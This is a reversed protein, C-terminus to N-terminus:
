RLTGTREDAQESVHVRLTKQYWRYDGSLQFNLLLIANDGAEAHSNLFYRMEGQRASYNHILVSDPNKSEAELSTLEPTGGIKELTVTQLRTNDPHLDVAEPMLYFPTEQQLKYMDAQELLFDEVESLSLDRVERRAGEIADRQDELDERYTFNEDLEDPNEPRLPASDIQERTPPEECLADGPPHFCISRILRNVESFQEDPTDRGPASAFRDIPVSFDLEFTEEAALFDNIQNITRPTIQVPNERSANQDQDLVMLFRTLNVAEPSRTALFREVVRHSTLGTDDVAGAELFNRQEATFELPTLFERAPVERALPLKGLNLQLTEGPLFRFRGKEDTTGSRSGTQYNLGEIGTMTIQGTAVGNDGSDSSDSDLCATLLCCTLTLPLALSRQILAAKRESKETESKGAESKASARESFAPLPLLCWLQKGAHLTM